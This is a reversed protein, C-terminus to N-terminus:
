VNGVRYSYFGPLLSFNLESLNFVRRENKKQLYLRSKKKNTTPKQKAMVVIKVTAYLNPEVIDQTNSIKSIKLSM